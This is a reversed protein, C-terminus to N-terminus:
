PSQHATLQYSIMIMIAITTSSHLWNCRSHCLPPSLGPRLPYGERGKQPILKTLSFFEPTAGYQEWVQFYNLLTKKGEEIDGKLSQFCLSVM